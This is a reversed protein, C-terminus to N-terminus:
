DTTFVIGEVKSVKSTFTSGVSINVDDNPNESENLDSQTLENQGNFPTSTNREMEQFSTIFTHGIKILITKCFRRLFCTPPM